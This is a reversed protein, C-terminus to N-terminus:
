DHSFFGESIFDSVPNRGSPQEEKQLDAPLGESNKAPKGLALMALIKHSGPVKLTLAAQECDFGAMGHVVLGLQAGQLAVNQWAAGADFAHTLNDEGWEFKVASTVVVLVSAKDCWSQNFDVLLQFLTNWHATNKTRLYFALTARQLLVTGM